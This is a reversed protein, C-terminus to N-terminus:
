LFYVVPLDDVSQQRLTKNDLGGGNRKGRMGAEREENQAVGAYLDTVEHFIVEGVKLNLRLNMAAGEFPVVNLTDHVDEQLDPALNHVVGINM